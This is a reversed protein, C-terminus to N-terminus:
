NPCAKLKPLEKEKSKKKDRWLQVGVAVKGETSHDSGEESAAVPFAEKSESEKGGGGVAM